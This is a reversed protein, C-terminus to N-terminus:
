LGAAPAIPTSTTPSGPSGAADGAAKGSRCGKGCGCCGAPAARIEREADAWDAEPSGHIGSRLRAEYLAFARARIADESPFAQRSLEAAAAGPPTSAKAEAIVATRPAPAGARANPQPAERSTSVPQRAATM